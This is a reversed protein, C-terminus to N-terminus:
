RIIQVVRRTDPEVIVRQDNVFAYAYGDSDPVTEVVVDEPLDSGVVVEDQIVVTSQPAQQEEVYTVVKRPPPNLHAGATYGLVGGVVAGVPGGVLAGTVAGGAGTTIAADEDAHANAALATLAVCTAAILTKNM